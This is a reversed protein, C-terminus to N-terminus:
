CSLFFSPFAAPCTVGCPCPCGDLGLPPLFLPPPRPAAEPTTAPWAGAAAGVAPPLTQYGKNADQHYINLSKTCIYIYIDIDCSKCKAIAICSSKHAEQQLPLRSKYVRIRTCRGQVGRVSEGHRSMNVKLSDFHMTTEWYFSPGVLHGSIDM